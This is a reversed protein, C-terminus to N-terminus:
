FKCKKPQLIPPRSICPLIRYKLDIFIPNTRGKFGAFTVVRIAKKTFYFSSQYNEDHFLSDIVM